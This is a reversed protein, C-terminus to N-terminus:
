LLKWWILYSAWLALLAELFQCSTAQRNKRNPQLKRSFAGDTKLSFADFIILRVKFSVLGVIVGLAFFIVAQIMWIFGWVLIVSKHTDEATM